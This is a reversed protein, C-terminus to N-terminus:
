GGDGWGELIAGPDGRKEKGSLFDKKRIGSYALSFEFSESKAADRM